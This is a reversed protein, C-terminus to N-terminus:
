RTAECGISAVPLVLRSYSFQSYNGRGPKTIAVTFQVGPVKRVQMRETQSPIRDLPLYDPADFLREAVPCRTGNKHKSQNQRLIHM